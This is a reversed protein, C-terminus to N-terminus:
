LIESIALLGLVEVLEEPGDVGDDALQHGGAVEVDGKEIGFGPHEAEWVEDVFEVGGGGGLREAPAQRVVDEPLPSGRRASGTM